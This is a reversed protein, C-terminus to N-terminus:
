SLAAWASLIIQRYTVPSGSAKYLPQYSCRSEGPAVQQRSYGHGHVFFVSPFPLCSSWVSVPFLCCVFPSSPSGHHLDHCLRLTTIETTNWTTRRRGLFLGVKRKMRKRHIWVQFGFPYLHDLSLFPVHESYFSCHIRLAKLTNLSPGLIRLHFLFM